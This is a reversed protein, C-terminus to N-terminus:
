HPELMRLGEVFRNIPFKIFKDRKYKKKEDVKRKCHCLEILYNKLSSFFQLKREGKKKNKSRKFRVRTYADALIAIFLNLLIFNMLFMIISFFIPALYKDAKNMERYEFRGSFIEFTTFFAFFPSSFHVDSHGFGLYATSALGVWFFSVLLLYSAM